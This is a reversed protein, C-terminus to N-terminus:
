FFITNFRINEIKVIQCIILAYFLFIFLLKLIKFKTQYRLGIVNQYSVDLYYLNEHHDSLNSLHELNLGSM